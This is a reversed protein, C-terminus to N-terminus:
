LIIWISDDLILPIIKVKWNKIKAIKEVMLM